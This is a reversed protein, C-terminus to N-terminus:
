NTIEIVDCYEINFTEDYDEDIDSFTGNFDFKFTNNNNNIRNITCNCKDSLYIWGNKDEYPLGIIYKSIDKKDSAKLEKLWELDYVTEICLKFDDTMLTIYLAKGKRKIGDVIAEYPDFDIFKEIIKYEINNIKLM